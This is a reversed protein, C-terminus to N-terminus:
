LSDLSALCTYTVPDNSPQDLVHWSSLVPTPKALTTSNGKSFITKLNTTSLWHYVESLSLFSYSSHPFRLLTSYGSSKILYSLSSPALSNVAMEYGSASPSSAPRTACACRSTGSSSSRPLEVCTVSFSSYGIDSDLPCPIKARRRENKLYHHTSM